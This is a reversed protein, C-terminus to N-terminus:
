LNLIRQLLMVVHWLGRVIVLLTLKKRGTKAMVEKVFKLLQEGRVENSNTASITAVFVQAGAKKLPEEVGYFILTFGQLKTSDLYAM